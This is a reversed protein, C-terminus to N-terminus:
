YSTYGQRVSTLRLTMTEQLILASTMHLPTLFNTMFFKNFMNAKVTTDHSVNSDHHIVEPIRHSKFKHKVYSWFKKSRM